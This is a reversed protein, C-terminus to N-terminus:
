LSLKTLSYVTSSIKAARLRFRQELDVLDDYTLQWRPDSITFDMGRQDTMIMGGAALVSWYNDLMLYFHFKCCAFGALNNDVIIHYKNRLTSIFGRTYKNLLYVTYNELRKADGCQKEALSVSLGDILNVRSCFREAFLSNGVGVHLVNVGSLDMRDLQQEIRLQDITTEHRSFDIKNPLDLGLGPRDLNGCVELCSDYTSQFVEITRADMPGRADHDPVTKRPFIRVRSRSDIVHLRDSAGLAHVVFSRLTDEGGILQLKEYDEGLVTIPQRAVKDDSPWYEPFPSPCHRFGDKFCWLFEHVLDMFRTHEKFFETKAVYFGGIVKPANTVQLDRGLVSRVLEGSIEITVPGNGRRPGFLVADPYDSISEEVYCNWDPELHIDADLKVFWPAFALRNIDRISFLEFNCYGDSSYRPSHLVDYLGRLRQVDSRSLFCSGLHVKGFPYLIGLLPLLLEVHQSGGCIFIDIENKFDRM